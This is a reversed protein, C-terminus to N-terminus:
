SGVINMNICNYHLINRIKVLLFYQLLFVGVGRYKGRRVEPPYYVRSIRKVGSLPVDRLKHITVVSKPFDM